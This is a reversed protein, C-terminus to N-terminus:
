AVNKGYMHDIIKLAQYADNLNGLPERHEHIAQIFEDFENKFSTDMPFEWYEEEPPGMKPLMKYHTLREKGYSGGLGDMQLKGKQGFIEFSFINKWETWSAHLWAIQGQPTELSFFVNDEIPIKWYYTKLTGQIRYFEGLFFRSLDILHIGQDMLEGGGSFSPNTRWEKEFGMRAGNGYRARIYLLPGLIGKQVIEYAKLIAPHFRHNFGVKVIRQYHDKTKMIPLLEQVSCAAPKEVLVHKQAELAALTISALNEHSTAVIVAELDKSSILEKWDSTIHIASTVEALQRAKQIDRDCLWLIKHAEMVKARKQGILGCGIIGLNM